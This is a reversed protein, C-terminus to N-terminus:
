WLLLTDSASALWRADPSFGWLTELDSLFHRAMPQGDAAWQRLVGTEEVSWLTDDPAFALGAVEGDTHFRSEGFRRRVLAPLSEPDAETRAAAEPQYTM